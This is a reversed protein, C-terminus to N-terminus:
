RSKYIYITKEYVSGAIDEAKIRIKNQGQVLKVEIERNIEVGPTDFSKSSNDIMDILSDGNYLKLKISNDTAKLKLKVSESSLDRKEVSYSITPKENDYFLRRVISAKEGNKTFAEARINVNFDKVSIDKEFEYVYINKETKKKVIEEAEINVLEGDVNGYKDVLSLSISTVSDDNKVNSVFGKVRLKGNNLEKVIDLLGPSTIFVSPYRYKSDDPENEKGKDDGAIDNEIEYDADSETSLNGDGKNKYKISISADEYIDYYINVAYRSSDYGSAKGEEMDFYAAKRLAETKGGSTISVGEVNKNANDAFVMQLKIRGGKTTFEPNQENVSIEKNDLKIQKFNKLGSESLNISIDKIDRPKQMQGDSFTTIVECSNVFPDITFEVSNEDEDYNFNYKAVNEINYNDKDIIYNIQRRNRKIYLTSLYKNNALKIKVKAKTDTTSYSGKDLKVDNVFVEINNEKMSNYFSLFNITNYNENEGTKLEVAKKNSLCDKAIIQIHSTDTFYPCSIEIDKNRHGNLCIFIQGSEDEATPVESAPIDLQGDIVKLLEKGDKVEKDTFSIRTYKGYKPKGTFGQDAQSSTATKDYKVSEIYIDEVGTGIDKVKFNVSKLRGAINTINPNDYILPETNDTSINYRYIQEAKDKTNLKVKIQYIYKENEKIEEGGIKGDWLSDPMLRFSKNRALRSLKRVDVSKGLVRLENEGSADFVAYEVEEMNRLPAIRAVLESHYMSKPSFYVTNDVVPLPLMMKTTFVSSHTGEDKNVFFQTNRKEGGIEDVSFADIAKQEDWDGYFGLFPVSLNVPDVTDTDKITIYGEMYNGSALGASTYDLSLELTKKSKPSVVFEKEMTDLSTSLYESNGTRYGNESAERLLRPTILYKKEKDSFNEFELSVNFSKSDLEGLELKGDAKDDNTGTAKVVVATKLAKEINMAGSGQQRVFCPSGEVASHPNVVPSATNMLLLKIFDAENDTKINNQRIYQKLIASAGAVQPAAMSTGSMKQYKDEEATSYIYGGPATIEPKIRLDPTPGWSSFNSIEGATPNQIEELEDSIELKLGSFTTLNDKVIKDYTSRKIRFITYKAAEGEGAVGGSISDEMTANNYIGIAAPKLEAIKQISQNFKAKGSEPPYELLVIKNEVNTKTIKSEEANKLDTYKAKIKSANEPRYVSIVEKKKKNFGSVWSIMNVKVKTNEMSAVALTGEDLAPSAIEATDYNEKLAKVSYTNGKVIDADNGAAVSVVIGAERAKNIIEEEPHKKGEQSFGAASGLSMNVVDAKMAIADDLAKLWIDTFTTPYSLDDSFVKLALIQANPAVGFINKDEDNAGIIGSVHMGHMVGYSDLLNDNFDYYNYGYPVKDSYYKGKLKNEAIMKMIDDRSYKARGADDLKLAKHRYDIGSDIVAVVTGEGKYNLTDWAYTAGIIDKSSDLFPREYEESIYVNKVGEAAELREIDSEKVNLAVGNFVTDYFRRDEETAEIDIEDMYALFDNQEKKLEEKKENVFSESFDKYAVGRKIAEDILSDGELEVMVRVKKNEEESFLNKQTEDPKEGEIDSISIEESVYQNTNLETASVPFSASLLTFSLIAAAYRNKFRM